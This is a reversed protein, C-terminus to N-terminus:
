GDRHGQQRHQAMGGQIAEWVSRGAQRLTEGAQEALQAANQAAAQAGGPAGGGDRGGEGNGSPGRDPAASGGARDPAQRETGQGEPRQREPRQQEPGQREPPRGEPRRGAPGAPEARDPEGQGPRSPGPRPRDAAAGGQRGQQDLVDRSRLASGTVEAAGAALQQAGRNVDDIATGATRSIAEIIQPNNDITDLARGLIAVLQELRVRLQAEAHVGNIDLEVGQLHVRVGADLQLLNALRARLSLDADLGDVALRISDVSVKPIDLLVDPDGGGDARDPERQQASESM